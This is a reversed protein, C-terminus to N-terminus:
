TIYIKRNFFHILDLRMKVQEVNEELSVVVRTVEKDSRNELHFFPGWAGEPDEGRKHEKEAPTALGKAKFMVTGESNGSAASRWGLHGQAGAAQEGMLTFTSFGLARGDLGSRRGQGRPRM